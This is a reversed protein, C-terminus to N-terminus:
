RKEYGCMARYEAASVDLLESPCKHHAALTRITLDAGRDIMLQVIEDKRHGLAHFIPTQSGAGSGDIEARANADAGRDLLLRAADFFGYEAAVHLLTAGRLTLLLDGSHRCDLEAYRRHLVAPDADLLAALEGTRGRLLPLVGPADYRTRAGAALLLEICASLRKPARPYTQIVYDLATGPDKPNGRNPDAGNDLLWQLPEPELNECPTFLAPFWGWCLGNVDAGHRVLLDMMPIRRPQAVRQLPVEDILVQRLEPNATLLEEVRALDNANIAQNLRGAKELSELHQKLKPWSPFGYQRAIQFQADALTTAAGSRVLDKAQDRLHRLNPPDPLQM